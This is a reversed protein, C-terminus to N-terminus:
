RGGCRPNKRHRGNPAEDQLTQCRERGVVFRTCTVHRGSRASHAPRPPAVPSPGPDNRCASRFADARSAPDPARDRNWATRRARCPGRRPAPRPRVSPSATFNRVDCAHPAGRRGVRDREGGRERHCQSRGARRARMAIASVLDSTPVRIPVLELPRFCDHRWLTAMLAAPPLPCRATLRLERISSHGVSRREIVIGEREGLRECEGDGTQSICALLLLAVAHGRM